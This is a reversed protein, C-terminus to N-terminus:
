VVSGKPKSDQPQQKIQIHKLERVLFYKLGFEEYQGFCGKYHSAVQQAIINLINRLPLYNIM